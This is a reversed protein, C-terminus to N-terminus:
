ILKDQLLELVTEQVCKREPINMLRCIKQQASSLCSKGSTLVATMNLGLPNCFNSFNENTEKKIFNAFRKFVKGESLQDEANLTAVFGGIHKYTTYTCPFQLVLSFQLFTM